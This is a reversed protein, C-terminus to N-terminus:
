HVGAGPSQAPEGTAVEDPLADRIAAVKVAFTVTKGAFPHNGDLTVTGADVHVVRMKLTEGQDNHFEAEAGLKRYEPPVNEIADTFTKAPDHPGFGEDPTLTVEVMDGVQKGDLAQEIKPYLGYRGGHLYDVPIEVAEVVEGSEDRITYTISIVKNRDVTPESM